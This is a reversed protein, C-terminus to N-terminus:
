HTTTPLRLWWALRVFALIARFFSFILDDFSSHFSWKFVQFWHFLWLKWLCQGQVECAPNVAGWIFVWSCPDLTNICTPNHGVFMFSLGEYFVSALLLAQIFGQHHLLVSKDLSVFFNLLLWQSTNQFFPTRLNKAM